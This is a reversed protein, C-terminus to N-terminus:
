LVDRPGTPHGPLLSLSPPPWLTGERLAWCGLLSRLQTSLPLLFDLVRCQHGSDEAAEPLGRPHDTPWLRGQLDPYLSEVRLSEAHAGSSM